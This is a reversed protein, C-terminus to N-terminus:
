KQWWIGVCYCRLDKKPCKSNGRMVSKERLRSHNRKLARFCFGTEDANYINKPEYPSILDLLRSKYESVVSGDVDKSQGCVGKWVINHSNKLSNLWKAFAKFQGNGLSKALALAESQVMPSSMRINKSRANMFWEWVVKNIEEDGSVKPIKLRIKLVSEAKHL